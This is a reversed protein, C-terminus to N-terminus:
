LQMVVFTSIIVFIQFFVVILKELSCSCKLRDVLSSLFLRVIIQHSCKRTHCSNALYSFFSILLFM